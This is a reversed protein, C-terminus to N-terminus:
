RAKSRAKPDGLKDAAGEDDGDLEEEAEDLDSTIAECCVEDGDLM